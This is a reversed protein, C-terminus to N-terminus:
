RQAIFKQKEADEAFEHTKNNLRVYFATKKWHHGDKVVDGRGGLSLEVAQRPVPLPNKCDIAHLQAALAPPRLTVWQHRFSMLSRLQFLDVDDKGDQHSGVSQQRRVNSAEQEENM